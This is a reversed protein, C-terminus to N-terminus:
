KVDNLILLHPVIEKGLFIEKHILSHGQAAFSNIATRYDKASYPIYIKAAVKNEKPLLEVVTDKKDVENNFEWIQTIKVVWCIKTEVTLPELLLNVVFSKMM